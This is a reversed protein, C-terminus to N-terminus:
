MASYIRSTLSTECRASVQMFIDIFMLRNSKLIARLYHKDDTPIKHVHFSKELANENFDKVNKGCARNTIRETTRIEAAGNSSVMEFSTALLSPLQAANTMLGQKVNNILV